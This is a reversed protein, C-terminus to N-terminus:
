DRLCRVSHGENKDLPAIILFQFGAQLARVMAKSQFDLPTWWGGYYGQLQFNPPDYNGGPLGTFGSSNTTGNNPSQWLGNGAQITGTSKMKSGVFNLMGNGTTDTAPDLYISLLNWDHNTAVHWGAPCLGQSNIVAYWNYLKGYIINNVPDNNYIKYAGNTNFSWLSDSLTPIVIGNRYKSTKLNEKMWEQTGIIISQYANGDIDAVGNGPVFYPPTTFSIQNGYATGESNTAYARMYYTTDSILNLINSTFIGTGTGENTISNLITPNPSTSWCLGRAVIENGGDYTINGGSSASNPTIGTAPTTTLSPLLTLTSFGVDNGYATGVNNSAYARVYYQTNPSLNTINSIFTGAGTGDFTKTNLAITPNPSTSWCVGRATVAAGGTLLINGGSVAGTGSISVVDLTNLEPLQPLTTFSLENGYTTGLTNTAYARVFYSTGPVLGNLSSAFSGIGTGDSTKTSLAITPNPSTSWCVGRATISGGGDSNINGGSSATTSTISTAITTTLTPLVVTATTFSEQNGYATGASNTAYARVYYLTNPALGTLSSSFSGSGTGDSTKTTLAITPNQISSWVVGRATISGGGDSSINGGSSATTSTISSAATTTLTPLNAPCIGGTTWTLVGNCITLTQGNNGPNLTIWASGNWYMIQNTATGNSFGPGAPGILGIPGQPGAPGQPGPTGNASFLAYPVSLLQSSGTISFNSGGNPDTETKIFYPGNAWNISAISGSVVTGGGVQLTVLGSANTTGTHTESYVVAGTESGQLISLRMGVSQNQLAQGAPNRIISQFSFKQPITQACVLGSTLLLFYFSLLFQAAIKKAIANM